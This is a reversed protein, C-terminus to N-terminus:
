DKQRKGQVQESNTRNLYAFTCRDLALTIIKELSQSSHTDHGEGSTMSRPWPWMCIMILEVSLECSTKSRRQCEIKSKFDVLGKFCLAFKLHQSVKKFRICQVQM